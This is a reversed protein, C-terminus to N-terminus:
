TATGTMNTSIEHTFFGKTERKLYLILMYLRSDVWFGTVYHFSVLFHIHKCIFFGQFVNSRTRPNRTLGEHVGYYEGWSTIRIGLLTQTRKGDVLRLLKNM